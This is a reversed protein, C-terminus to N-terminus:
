LIKLIEAFWEDQNKKGQENIGCSLTTEKDTAYRIYISYSIETIKNGQRTYTYPEGQRKEVRMVNELSVLVKDTAFKVM